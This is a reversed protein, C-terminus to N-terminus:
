PIRRFITAGLLIEALILILGALAFYQYLEIYEFYQTIEVDTKELQDIEDYIGLLRETDDARYYKGETKAAIEKLTDEDIDVQSQQDGLYDGRRNYVPVPAMGRTGVGITYVKVGITSAAEAATLPPVRNQNEKGDTMLIVIKSESDLDRLRNLSAMLGAGVATGDDVLGLELREVNDLLFDHDLTLPSAVYAQKAFAVLGIRDSSRREIFKRLAQKAIQLRNARRGEIEFDEAAMSTSLDVAVVIDIGSAKIDSEGETFRPRALAVILFALALWRLINLFAGARSKSLNTIGKLISVSSYLFAAPSSRKGTLWSLIPLAILLLLFWPAGFSM